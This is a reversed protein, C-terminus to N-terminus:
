HLSESRQCLSHAKIMFCGTPNSSSAVVKVAAKIMMSMIYCDLVAKM